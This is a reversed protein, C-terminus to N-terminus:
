SPLSSFADATSTLARASASRPQPVAAAGPGSRRRRAAAWGRGSRRRDARDAVEGAAEAVRAEPQDRGTRKQRPAAGAGRQQADPLGAAARELEVSAGLAGHDQCPVPAPPSACPAQPRCEVRNGKAGDGAAGVAQCQQAGARHPHGAVDSAGGGLAQPGVRKEGGHGSRAGVRDAELARHAPDFPQRGCTRDPTQSETRSWAPQPVRRRPVRGSRSVGRAFIAPSRLLLMVPGCVGEAAM